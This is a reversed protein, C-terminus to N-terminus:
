RCVLEPRTASLASHDTYCVITYSQAACTRDMHFSEEYRSAFYAFFFWLVFSEIVFINM